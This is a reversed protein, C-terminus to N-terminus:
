SFANKRIMRVYICQSLKAYYMYVNHYNLFGHHTKRQAASAINKGLMASIQAWVSRRQALHCKKYKVL